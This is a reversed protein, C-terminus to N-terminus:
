GLGAITAGHSLIPIPRGANNVFAQEADIGLHRYVTALVDAPSVPNDAPHEGKRTTAGIVQGMKLGGGSLLVSMAQPWHDRGASGNIRPTRGFEGWVVLLVRRDLGRDFLDAILAGVAQDMPPCNDKAGSTVTGGANGHHDWSGIRLSVFGAGAEIFRRALLCSRGADHDGYRAKLDDPEQKLDFAAHASTSTLMEYAQQELDDFASMMRAADTDRRLRDFDARLRRRDDLRDLKLYPNV